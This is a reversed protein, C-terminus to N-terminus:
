EQPHSAQEYPTEVLFKIIRDRLDDGQGDREAGIENEALNLLEIAERQWALLEEKSM